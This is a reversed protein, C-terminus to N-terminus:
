LPRGFAKMGGPFWSMNVFGAKQLMVMARHSADCKKHACYTIIPVEFLHIHGARIARDIEPLHRRVIMKIRRVSEEASLTHPVNWTEPIHDVAYIDSPLTNLVVSRRSRINKLVMDLGVSCYLPRTKVKNAMWRKNSRDSVVYHMHRIYSKEPGKEGVERARYIQPCVISVVAKGISNIKVIGSNPFKPAAYAEKARKIKLRSSATEATAGWFLLYRNKYANGVNIQFMSQSKPKYTNQKAKLKQALVFEKVYDVKQLWETKNMGATHRSSKSTGCTVCIKTPM